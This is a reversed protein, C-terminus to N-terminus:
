PTEAWIRVAELRLSRGTTGCLEGPGVPDMWGLNQVHAQCRIGPYLDSSLRVAELRLSRGTTGLFTTCGDACNEAQEPIWGLNQVHATGHVSGPMRLAELRLSRGTTGATEGDPVFPLWGLNQVHAATRPGYENDAAATPAGLLTIVALTTLILALKRM